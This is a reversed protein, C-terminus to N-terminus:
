FPGVAVRLHLLASREERGLVARGGGAGGDRGQCQGPVAGGFGLLCPCMESSRQSALHLGYVLSGRATGPSPDPLHARPATLERCLSRGPVAARVGQSLCNSLYSSEEKSLFALYVLMYISKLAM